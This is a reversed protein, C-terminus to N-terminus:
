EKPLHHRRQQQNNKKVVMRCVQYFDLVSNQPFDTQQEESHRLVEKAYEARTPKIDRKKLSKWPTMEIDFLAVGADDKLGVCLLYLQKKSNDHTLYVRNAESIREGTSSPSTLASYDEDDQSNQVADALGQVNSSMSFSHKTQQTGSAALPHHFFQSMM